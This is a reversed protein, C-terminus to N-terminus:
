YPYVDYGNENYVIYIHLANQIKGMLSFSTNKCDTKLASQLTTMPIGTLESFNRLTKYQIKIELKLYEGLSM